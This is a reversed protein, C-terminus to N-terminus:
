KQKKLKSRIIRFADGVKNVLVILFIFLFSIALLGLGIVEGPTTVVITKPQSCSSIISFTLMLLTANRIAERLDSKMKSIARRKDSKTLVPDAEVLAIQQTLYEIREQESQKM